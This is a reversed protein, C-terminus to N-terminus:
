SLTSERNAYASGQWSPTSTETVRKPRFEVIDNPWEQRIETLARRVDMRIRNLSQRMVQLRRSERDQFGELEQVIASLSSAALTQVQGIEIDAMVRTVSIGSHFTEVSSFIDSFEASKDAVCKLQQYAASQYLRSQYQLHEIEELREFGDSDAKVDKFSEIAEAQVSIMGAKFQCDQLIMELARGESLFENAMAEISGTMKGFNSAIVSLPIGDTGLRAAQIRMNVPLKEFIKFSSITNLMEAKVIQWNEMSRQIGAVVANVDKNLTKTRAITQSAVAASMFASYDEYGIAKLKDLFIGACQEPTVQGDCEIKILECYLKEIAGLLPENPKLCVSMYGTPLPVTMSFVWFHEGSQTKNKFFAAVPKGDQLFRWLLWFLGRPMDEHRLISFPANHLKEWPYGSVSQFVDNAAVIMGKGDTRSVLIDNM